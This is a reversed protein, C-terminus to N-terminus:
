KKELYIHGGSAKKLRNMYGVGQGIEPYCEALIVDLKPTVHDLHRLGAFLHTMAQTVDRKTALSYTVLHDDKMLQSLIMENALIGVRKGVSLYERSATQWSSLTDSPVMIVPTDPSYHKYKMGPAKPVENSDVLHGDVIVPGIVLELEEQTIAGPRLIEPLGTENSIDLVTSEIGVTCAGGDVIGAIKGSLDDYVHSALTPSPKGSSNASPGVLVCGSQKILERTIAKDPMRFAVTNLGGTVVSPLSDPEKLEFILTLPGPWFHDMLQQAKLSIPKVFPLLEKEDSIHVILPNDSPRGKAAYVAKVAEPNTADAGLGYVTETPFAILGGERIAQVAQQIETEQLIKTQM